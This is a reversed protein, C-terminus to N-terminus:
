NPLDLRMELSHPYRNSYNNSLQYSIIINLGVICVYQGVDSARVASIELTGDDKIVIRQNSKIPTSRFKLHM